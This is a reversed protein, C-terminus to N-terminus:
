CKLMVDDTPFPLCPIPIHFSPTKDHEFTLISIKTQNSKFYYATMLSPRRPTKCQLREKKQERRIPTRRYGCQPISSFISRRYTFHLSCEPIPYSQITPHILPLPASTSSYLHYVGSIRNDKNRATINLKSSNSSSLSDNKTLCSATKSSFTTFPTLFCRKYM